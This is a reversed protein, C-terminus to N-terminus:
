YANSENINLKDGSASRMPLSLTHLFFLDSLILTIPFLASPM